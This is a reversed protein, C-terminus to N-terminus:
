LRLDNASNNIMYRKPTNRLSNEGNVVRVVFLVKHLFVLLMGRYDRQDRETKWQMLISSVTGGVNTNAHSGQSVRHISLELSSM